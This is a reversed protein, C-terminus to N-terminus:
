GRSCDSCSNCTGCADDSVETALSKRNPAWVWALYGAAALVIAIAIVTQMM